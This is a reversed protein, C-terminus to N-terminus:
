NSDRDNLDGIRLYVDYKNQGYKLVMLRGIEIFADEGSMDYLDARAKDLTKTIDDLSPIQLEGGIKWEYGLQWFLDYLKQATEDLTM